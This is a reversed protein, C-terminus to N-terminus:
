VETANVIRWPGEGEASADFRFLRMRTLAQDAGIGILIGDSVAAPPFAILDFEEFFDHLQELTLGELAGGLLRPLEEEFGFRVADLLDLSADQASACPVAERSFFGYRTELTRGTFIDHSERLEYGRRCPLAVQKTVTAGERTFYDGEDEYGIAIEQDVRVCVCHMGRESKAVVYLVRANNAQLVEMHAQGDPAITHSFVMEDGRDIALHIGQDRFLTATMNGVRKEAFSVGPQDGARAIPPPQIAIEHAGGPWIRARLSDPAEALSGGEVVLRRTVPVYGKVLPQANIYYVGDPAVPLVIPQDPGAEGLAVGDLLLLSPPDARLFLTPIQM